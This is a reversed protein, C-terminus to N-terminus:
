YKFFLVDDDIDGLFQSPTVPISKNGLTVRNRYTLILKKRARTMGVYLLRREEELESTLNPVNDATEISDDSSIEINISSKLQKVKDKGKASKTKRKFISNDASGKSPLLGDELGIIYVCDFELGKASHLSMLKLFNSKGTPGTPQTEVVEEQDTTDMLFYDLFLRLRTRAGFPGQEVLDDPDTNADFTRALDLLVNFLHLKKDLDKVDIKQGKLHEILGTMDYLIRIFEEIDGEWTRLMENLNSFLISATRLKKTVEPKLYKRIDTVDPVKSAKIRNDDDNENVIDIDTKSKNAKKSVKKVKEDTENDNTIQILLNLIPESALGDYLDEVNNIINEEEVNDVAEFFATQASPGIGRPPFNIIRLLSMKDYPNALIRLYALIDKVEKSDIWNVNGVTVFPIKYMLLAAQVAISQSHRRYLVAIEKSSFEKKRIHYDISQAVFEAQKADDYTNVVSVALQDDPSTAVNKFIEIGRGEITNWDTGPVNKMLSRSAKIIPPISRYNERLKFTLCSPFYEAFSEMNYPNSGRWSYITQHPDGVVFLCRNIDNDNDDSEEAVLERILLYQFNDVDQWEDVLINKFKRKISRRAREDTKLLNYFDIILDDFDKANNIRLNDDYILILKLALLNLDTLPFNITYQKDRLNNGLNRKLFSIAHQIELLSHDLKTDTEKEYDAVIQKLLKRSDSEDYISFDKIKGYSRLVRVSFSHMTTATLGTCNLSNQIREKIENAAKKTFTVALISTPPIQEEIILYVIRNVLVRTKGSGPGALVRINTLPAFVALKQDINLNDKFGSIIDNLIDSNDNHHNDHHKVLSSISSLQSSKTPSSLRRISIYSKYFSDITNFSYLLLLVILSYLSM